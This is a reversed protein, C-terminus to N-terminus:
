KAVAAAPLPSKVPPPAAIIRRGRELAASLDKWYVRKGAVSFMGAKHLSKRVEHNAETLLARVNNKKLKIVVEKLTEIATIDAFPVHHLRIVVVKPYTNTYALVREFSEVAGFFLPGEITYILLDKPSSAGAQEPPLEEGTLPRVEVSSTMRKMFNFVALLVGVNVAVVLDTLVTLSFTVLMILVDARPAQRVIYVFRKVDSMNYAVVFLIAAMASLPIYSALPALALLILVLAACQFLCALPSNGGNRVNTATRAIAGTAAIGGLLPSFINAIGQGILEQNSNHKTNTMGDAVVASLLSEIACLM